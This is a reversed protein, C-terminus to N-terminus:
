NIYVHDMILTSKTHLNPGIAINSSGSASSLIVRTYLEHQCFYVFCGRGQKKYVEERGEGEEASIQEGAYKLVFSNKKIFVDLSYVMVQFTQNNCEM